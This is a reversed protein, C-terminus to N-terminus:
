QLRLVTKICNLCNQHNKKPYETQKATMKEFCPFDIIDKVIWFRILTDLLDKFSGETLCLHLHSRMKTQEFM